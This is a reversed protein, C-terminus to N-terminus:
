LVPKAQDAWLGLTQHWDELVSALGPQTAPFQLLPQPKPRQRITNILHQSWSSRDQCSLLVGQHGDQLLEAAASTESALMWLGASLVERALAPDDGGNLTPEIWLSHSKLQEILQHRDIGSHWNVTCAGWPQAPDQVPEQSIDLVTLKLSNKPLTQIAQQLALLGSDHDGTRLVLARVPANAPRDPDLPIAQWPWQILEVSAQGAAKAAKLLQLSSASCGAAKRLRTHQEPACWSQDQLHLLYPIDLAIACDVAAQCTTGKGSIHLLDPRRQRWRQHWQDKSKPETRSEWDVRRTPQQRLAVALANALRAEGAVAGPDDRDAVLAIHQQPPPQKLQILPAWLAAAQDAGLQDIAHRQARRAMALRQKPNHILRNIQDVWAQQSTAFLTHEEERLLERCSRIPSLVTALGMLSCEMWRNPSKADTFPGPELVMLGIDAESLRQLYEPFPCHERCRIRAQFPELVLPLTLSGLLDLQLQQHQELLQALAPALQQHWILRHPTSASAVVLRLRGSRQRLWHLRPKQRAQLLEAPILNPWLQIPQEPHGQQAQIATWREVLTSTSLLLQDAALLSAQLQPLTASVKRHWEAPVSGGYNALPPPCQEPDFLLDDLDFLVPIAQRRAAAILAFLAPSAPLRHILLGEMDELLSAISAVTHLENLTLVTAQCGLQLLQQRKHEVRYLWCQPLNDNACLLWRRRPGPRPPLRPPLAELWQQCIEQNFAQAKRQLETAPHLVMHASLRDLDLEASNAKPTGQQLWFSTLKLAEASTGLAHLWPEAKHHWGAKILGTAIMRWEDIVYAPLPQSASLAQHVASAAEHSTPAARVRARWYVGLIAPTSNGQEICPQLLQGAAHPDGLALHVRALEFRLAVLSPAQQHAENLLELADLWRREQSLHRGREIAAM